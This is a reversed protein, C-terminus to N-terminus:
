YWCVKLRLPLILETGDLDEPLAEGNQINLTLSAVINRGRGTVDLNNLNGKHSSDYFFLSLSHDRPRTMSM